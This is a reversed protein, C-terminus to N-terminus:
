LIKTQANKAVVYIRVYGILALGSLVLAAKSAFHTYVKFFANFQVAGDDRV